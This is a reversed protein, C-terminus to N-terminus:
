QKGKTAPVPTENGMGCTGPPEIGAIIERDHTTCTWRYSQNGIPNGQRFLCEGREASTENLFVRHSENEVRAAALEAKLRDHEALTNSHEAGLAAWQERVGALEAKLNERDALCTERESLWFKVSTQDTIAKEVAAARAQWDAKPQTCTTEDRHYECHKVVEALWDKEAPPNHQRGELLAAADAETGCVEGSWLCEPDLSACVYFGLNGSRIRWRLRWGCKPCRPKTQDNTM